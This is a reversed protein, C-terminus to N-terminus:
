SPFVGNIMFYCLGLFSISRGEVFLSQVQPITDFGLLYKRLEKPDEFYKRSGDIILDIKM